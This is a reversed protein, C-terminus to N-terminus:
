LWKRWRFVALPILTTIIILGWAWAYGWGWDYEPINKFNMGYVGAILVPPIGVVSAIAMVKMVNNQAINIFGLTADLLFQLKDNLHTDFDSVSSIDQRLTTLRPALDKPLWEAAMTEVYPVIRGAGVQTERIHSILDGIGGLQGLTRRLLADENKRGATQGRGMAFVGHSISELDARVQELGDAQRDVIAELLGVLIHAGTEHRTEGRPLHEAYGDFITSPAFRITILREASLVFGAAVGLPGKDHHISILAMSLYLVGNRSALRSSTEIESLEAESPIHLSTAQEVRDIEDQDASVLDIWIADRLQDVSASGSQRHLQGDTCIFATMM